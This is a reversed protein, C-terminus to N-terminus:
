DAFLQQMDAGVGKHYCVLRVQLDLELSRLDLNGSSLVAIDDSGIITTHLV